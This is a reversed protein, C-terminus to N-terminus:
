SSKIHKLLLIVLNWVYVIDKQKLCSLVHTNFSFVYACSRNERGRREFGTRERERRELGTREREGRLVQEREREERM